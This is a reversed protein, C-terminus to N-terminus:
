KGFSMKNVLVRKIPPFHQLMALGLGRLSAVGLTQNTFVNVLFDTFLLGGRTDAQRRQRYEALMPAGGLQAASTNAILDVLTWADRMGVNFGQGAVPHMTQAANGIVVVHAADTMSLSSLKLPFSMRKEISLFQGVRDGFAAHLESLFTADDLTLLRDVMDKEGTWVLSFDSAGNPLLAMPGTATFREYAVNNHPMEAKVKSVLADHGYAKTERMLGPVEELSRGGDAIVLLASRLQETKGAVEFSVEAHHDRPLIARAAAQYLVHQHDIASDLAQMLAGYSVVYGLAPLQHEQAQLKTRGLGGRQSIHITQIATAHPEVQAWVGLRELVLKTGYSLALARTDQHAAGQPRAELVKFPIAKQQLALALALGVPGGGVIVITDTTNM